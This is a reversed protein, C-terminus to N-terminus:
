VDEEHYNLPLKNGELWLTFEDVKVMAMYASKMTALDLWGSHGLWDRGNTSAFVGWDSMYLYSYGENMITNIFTAHADTLPRGQRRHNLTKM